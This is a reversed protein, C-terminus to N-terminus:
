VDRRGEPAPAENTTVRSTEDLVERAVRLLAHALREIDIEDRQNGTVRIQRRM